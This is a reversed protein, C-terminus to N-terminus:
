LEARQRFQVNGEEESIRGLDLSKMTQQIRECWQELYGRAIAKEEDGMLHIEESIRGLVRELQIQDKHLKRYLVALTIDQSPRRLQRDHEMVTVTQGEYAPATAESSSSGPRRSSPTGRSSGPDYMTSAAQLRKRQQLIAIIDATKLNRARVEEILYARDVEDDVNGLERIVRVPIDPDDEILKRVDPPVRLLARHEDIHDKNKKLAEALSRVTYIARGESDTERLLTDYITALELPTLQERQINELLAVRKMRADPCSEIIEAPCHTWGALKAARWRREGAAIEYMGSRTPSVRVIIPELMGEARLSDALEQLSQPDFKKRPQFPNPIIREVDVNGFTRGLDEVASKVAEEIDPFATSLATDTVTDTLPFVDALGFKRKASGKAM